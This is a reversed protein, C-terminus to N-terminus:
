GIIRTMIPDVKVPTHWVFSFIIWVFTFNIQIYRTVGRVKENKGNWFIPKNTKSSKSQIMFPTGM